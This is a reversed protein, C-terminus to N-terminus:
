MLAILARLTIVLIERKCSIRLREFIAFVFLKPNISAVVVTILIQKKVFSVVLSDKFGQKSREYWAWTPM